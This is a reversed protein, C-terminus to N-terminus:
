LTLLVPNPIISNYISIWLVPFAQMNKTCYVKRDQLSIHLVFLIRATICLVTCHYKDTSCYTVYTNKHVLRISGLIIFLAPFCWQKNYIVPNSILELYFLIFCLMVDRLLKMELKQLLFDNHLLMNIAKYLFTCPWLLFWRSVSLWGSEQGLTLVLCWKTKQTCQPVKNKFTSHCRFATAKREM